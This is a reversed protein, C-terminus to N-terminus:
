AFAPMENDGGVMLEFAHRLNEGVSEDEVPLLDGKTGSRFDHDAIGDFLGKVRAVGMSM